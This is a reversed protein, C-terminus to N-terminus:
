KADFAMVPTIIDAVANEDGKASGFWEGGGFTIVFIRETDRQDLDVIQVNARSEPTDSYRM